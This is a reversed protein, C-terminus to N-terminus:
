CWKAPVLSTGASPSERFHEEWTEGRLGEMKAKPIEESTVEPVAELTRPCAHGVQGQPQLQDGHDGEQSSGGSGIDPGRATARRIGIEIRIQVSGWERARARVHVRTDVRTGRDRVIWPVRNCASWTDRNNERYNEGGADHHNGEHCSDEREDPTYEGIM